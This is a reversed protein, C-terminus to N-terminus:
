ICVDRTRLPWSCGSANAISLVFSVLPETESNNLYQAHDSALINKARFNSVTVRMDHANHRCVLVRYCFAYPCLSEV